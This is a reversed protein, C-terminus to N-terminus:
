SQEMSSMASTELSAMAAAAACVKRWTGAASHPAPNAGDGEDDVYGVMLGNDRRVVSGPQHQGIANEVYLLPAPGIARVAALLAQLRAESLREPRMHHVLIKEGSEIVDLLNRALYSIKKCQQVFFEQYEVSGEFFFTHAEMGYRRDTTRYEGEEDVKIETFEPAGVGRFRDRLAATLADVGIASFRLLGLPEAGFSRQVSGFECDRGLSEFRLM